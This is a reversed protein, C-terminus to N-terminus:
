IAAEIDEEEQLVYRSKRLKRVHTRKKKKIKPQAPISGSSGVFKSGKTRKDLIKV